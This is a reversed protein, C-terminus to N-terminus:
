REMLSKVGQTKHRFYTTLTHFLYLPFVHYITSQFIVRKFGLTFPAFIVTM